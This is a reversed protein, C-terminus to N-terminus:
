YNYRRIASFMPIWRQRWDSSGKCCGPRFSRESKLGEERRDEEGEKESGHEEALLRSCAMRSAPRLGIPILVYRFESRVSIANPSVSTRKKDEKEEKKEGKITLVGDFVRVEVNKEDVGPM